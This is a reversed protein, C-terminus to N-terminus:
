GSAERRRRKDERWVLAMIIVGLIVLWATVIFTCRMTPFLHGDVIWVAALTMLVWRVGWFSFHLGMGRGVESSPTFHMVVPFFALINGAQFFGRIAVVAFFAPWSGVFATAVFMGCSLVWSLIITMPAGFRDMFVGWVHFSLLAAAMFGARAYAWQEATLSLEDRAFLPLVSFALVGGCATIFYGFLFLVLPRNRLTDRLAGLWQGKSPADDPTVGPDRRGRSGRVGRFVAGSVILAMGGAPFVWHYRTIDARLLPGLCLFCLVQALMAMTSPLSLLKGRWQEPYVQEIATGVIPMRFTSLMVGAFLILALPRTSDALGSFLLIVGGAAMALGAMRAPNRRELLPMWLLAFLLPLARALNVTLCEFASGGLQRIVFPGMGIVAAQSIGFFGWSLTHRYGRRRYEVPLSRSPPTHDDPTLCM